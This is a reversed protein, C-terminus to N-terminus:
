SFDERIFDSTQIRYHKLKNRKSEQRKKWKHFKSQFEMFALYYCKSFFIESEINNDKIQNYIAVNEQLLKTLENTYFKFELLDKFIYTNLLRYPRAFQCWAKVSWDSSRITTDFVGVSSVIGDFRVPHPGIFKVEYISLISLHYAMVIYYPEHPKVEQGNTDLILDAAITM